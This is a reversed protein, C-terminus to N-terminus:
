SNPAGAANVAVILDSAFKGGVELTHTKGFTQRAQAYQERGLLAKLLRPARTWNGADMEGIDDVTDWEALAAMDVKWQRGSVVVTITTDPDLSKTKHDQPKKTKAEAM